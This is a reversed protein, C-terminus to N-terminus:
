AASSLDPGRTSAAAAEWLRASGSGGREHRLPQRSRDTRCRESVGDSDLKVRDLLFDPPIGGTREPLKSPDPEAFDLGRPETLERGPLETSQEVLRAERTGARM